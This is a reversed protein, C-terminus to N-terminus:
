LWSRLREPACCEERSGPTAGAHPASYSTQRGLNISESRKALCKECFYVHAYYRPKAGTGPLHDRDDDFYRLGAYVFKHESCSDSM